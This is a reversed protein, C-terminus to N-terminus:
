PTRLSGGETRGSHRGRKQTPTDLSAALSAASTEESRLTHVALANGRIQPGRVAIDTGSLLKKAVLSTVVVISQ